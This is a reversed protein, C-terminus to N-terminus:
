MRSSPREDQCGSDNNGGAGSEGVANPILLPVQLAQLDRSRLFDAGSAPHGDGNHVGANRRM